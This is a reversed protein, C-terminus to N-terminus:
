AADEAGEVVVPIKELMAEYAPRAAEIDAETAWSMMVLDQYNERGQALLLAEQSAESMNANMRGMSMLLNYFYQADVDRIAWAQMVKELVQRASTDEAGLAMLVFKARSSAKRGTIEQVKHVGAVADSDSMPFGLLKDLVGTEIMLNLAAAANPANLLRTIENVKRVPSISQVEDRHFQCAELSAQDPAGQGYAAYFSFFRLLHNSTEMIREAPNGVFRIHGALVDQVGGLYDIVEGKANMYLSNITLDRHRTDVEWVDVGVVAKRVGWRIIDSHMGYKRVESIDFNKQNFRIVVNGLRAFKSNYYIHAKSMIGIIVDASTDVVFDVDKAPIGLVADRVCGGVFRFPVDYQDFLACIQMIEPSHLWEPQLVLPAHNDGSPTIVASADLDRYEASMELVARYFQAHAAPDKEDVWRAIMVADFVSRGLLFRLPEFDAVEHGAPLSDYHNMAYQLVRHMYQRMRLSQELWRLDREVSNASSRLLVFLRIYPPAQEGMLAEVQELVNLGECDKLMLGFVKSLVEHEYMIKFTSYPKPGLLMKLLEDHLRESKIRAAAVQDVCSLIASLEDEPLPEKGMLAQFRFYRLMFIPRQVLEIPNSICRVRGALLDPLGGLEDVFEGDTKMYLANFTLDRNLADTKWDDTFTIIKSAPSSSRLTTIDIHHDPFQATVLGLKSYRANYPVDGASLIEIVQDARAPTAIDVDNSAIGVVADRVCGGVFRIEVNHEAFLKILKQTEPWQLWPAVLEPQGITTNM